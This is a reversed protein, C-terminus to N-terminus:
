TYPFCFKRQEPDYDSCPDACWSRDRIAAPGDTCYLVRDVLPLSATPIALRSDHEDNNAFDAIGDRGCSGKASALPTGKLTRQLHMAELINAAGAPIIGSAKQRRWGAAVSAALSEAEAALGKGQHCQAGQRGLLVPGVGFREALSQSAHLLASM